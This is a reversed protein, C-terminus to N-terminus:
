MGPKSDASGKNICVRKNGETPSSSFVYQESGARSLSLPEAFISNEDDAGDEEQNNTM